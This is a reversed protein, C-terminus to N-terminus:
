TNISHLAELLQRYVLMNPTYKPRGYVVPSSFYKDDDGTYHKAIAAAVGSSRSQGAFCHIVFDRIGDKYADQIQRAMRAAMEEDFLKADKLQPFALITSMAPMRDLDPFEYYHVAITQDNQRVKPVRDGPTRISIIIHPKNPQALTEIEHVNKVYLRM